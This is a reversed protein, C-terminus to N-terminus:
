VDEVVEGDEIILTCEDGLSVRTCIIQLDKQEAWKGFEQLTESDMSEIDDVLVFKCDPRVGSAIATSAILRQAGSMGDWTRGEFLLNGDEDVSLDAHPMAAKQLMADREERKAKLTKDAKEAKANAKKAAKEAAASRENETWKLNETAANNLKVRIVHEDVLETELKSAKTAEKELDELAKKADAIKMALREAEDEMDAISAKSRAVSAAAARRTEDNVRRQENTRTAEDLEAQLAEIDVKKADEHHPLAAHHDRAAKAQTNALTRADYAEKIEADIKELSLGVARLLMKSKDADKADMFASLQLALESLLANLLTQGGKMGREDSVHLSGNKGKREVIIGNSLEIRIRAPNEAGDHNPESPAKRDGGLAWRIADLVSTKGQQNKGGIVTLGNPTPQLTVARIRKFDSVELSLIRVEKPNTEKPM